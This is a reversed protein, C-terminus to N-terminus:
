QENNKNQMEKNLAVEIVQQDRITVGAYGLIKTILKVEDSPHIELDQFDNASPNYVPNGSIMIYTWKPQKPERIYFCSVDNVITNPFVEFKDGYRVYVPYTTTPASYADQNLRLVLSKPVQEIIANQYRLQQIRYVDQNDVTYFGNNLTMTSTEAFLDIKERINKPIDSYESNTLRKNQYNVFKNYDYFNNEFIDRQALGALRNFEMPPITGINNKNLITLVTNRVRDIM